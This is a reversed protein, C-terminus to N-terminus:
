AARSYTLFKRQTAGLLGLALMGTAVLIFTSPEPVQTVTSELNEGQFIAMTGPGSFLGPTEFENYCTISMCRYLDAYSLSPVVPTSEANDCLHVDVEDGAPDFFGLYNVDGDGCGTPYPTGFRYPGSFDYTFTGLDGSWSSTANVAYADYEGDALQFGLQFAFDITETCPSSGCVDNGMMTITGTISYM